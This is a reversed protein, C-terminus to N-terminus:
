AKPHMNSRILENANESAQGPKPKTASTLIAEAAETAADMEWRGHPTEYRCECRKTSQKQQLM